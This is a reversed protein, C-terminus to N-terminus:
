LLDKDGSKMAGSSSLLFGRRVRVMSARTDRLLCPEDAGCDGGSLGLDQFAEEGVEALNLLAFVVLKASKSGNYNELLVNIIIVCVCM